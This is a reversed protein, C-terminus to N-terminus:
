RGCASRACVFWGPRHRQRGRVLRGHEAVDRRASGDDSRARLFIRESHPLEQKGSATIVYLPADKAYIQVREFRLAANHEPGVPFADLRVSQGKQLASLQHMTARDVNREAAGASAYLGLAALLLLRVNRSFNM